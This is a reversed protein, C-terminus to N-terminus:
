ADGGLASGFPITHLSTVPEYETTASGPEARGREAEGSM